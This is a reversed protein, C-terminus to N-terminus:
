IILRGILFIGAYFFPTAAILSDLRDLIGGHGPLLAGSDKVGRQRKILSFFLDGYVSIMVTLVSLLLFDSSVMFNFGYGLSLAIACLAAAALAGYAGEVTKGPSIEPALKTKGFRRGVFFAAVDAAWILLLLYMVMEAGYFAKLRCLFMWFASLLMVGIFAKHVTKITMKLLNDPTKRLLFMMVLWFLVPPVVLIDLWGSYNRIDPWNLLQAMLELIQTWFYVGAMPVILASLYITRKLLSRIGILAAWEWAALLTLVGLVLSFWESKLEFVALAALPALILATIVRKRLM